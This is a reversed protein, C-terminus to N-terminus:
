ASQMKGVGVSALTVDHSKPSGGRQITEALLEGIRREAYVKIEAADNQAELGMGAQRYYQRIAEAQDRIHKVEDVTRAEALLQRATDLRQLATVPSPETNPEWPSFVSDHAESPMMPRKRGRPTPHFPCRIRACCGRSTVPSLASRRTTKGMGASAPPWPRSSRPPKTPPTATKRPWSDSASSMPSARGSDLPSTSSNGSRG